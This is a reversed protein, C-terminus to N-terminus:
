LAGVQVPLMASAPSFPYTCHAWAMVPIACLGQPQRWSQILRFTSDQRNSHQLHKSNTKYRKDWYCRWDSPTQGNFNRSALFLQECARQLGHTVGWRVTTAGLLSSCQTMRMVLNKKRSWHRFPQPLLECTNCCRILEYYIDNHWCNAKSVSMQVIIHYISSQLLGPLQCLGCSFSIFDEYVQESAPILNVFQTSISWQDSTVHRVARRAM